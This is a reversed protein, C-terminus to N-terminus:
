LNKLLASLTRLKLYKLWLVWVEVATSHQECHAIDEGKGLGHVVEAEWEGGVRFVVAVSAETGDHKSLFCLAFPSLSFYSCLPPFLQSQRLM